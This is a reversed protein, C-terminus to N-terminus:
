KKEGGKEENKNFTYYILTRGGSIEIKQKKMDMGMEGFCCLRAQEVAEARWCTVVKPEQNDLRAQNREGQIRGEPGNASSM